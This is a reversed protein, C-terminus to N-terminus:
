VPSCSWCGDAWGSGPRCNRATSPSPSITMPGRRWDKSSMAKRGRGTLLIVHAPHSSDTERLRRCVELGSMGPMDWDLLVLEPADTRQLADWAATGDEVAVPDYGWKKLIAVLIGRSTLDDEAILIRM